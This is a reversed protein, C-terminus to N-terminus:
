IILLKTIFSNTAAIHYLVRHVVAKNGRGANILQSAQINFHAGHPRASRVCRSSDAQNRLNRHNDTPIGTKVARHSAYARDKIFKLFMDYVSLSWRM